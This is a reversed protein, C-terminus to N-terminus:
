VVNQSRGMPPLQHIEESVVVEEAENFKEEKDDVGRENDVGQRLFFRKLREGPFMGELVMGDLEELM